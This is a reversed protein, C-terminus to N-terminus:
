KGKMVCVLIIKIICFFSINILFKFVVSFIFHKKKGMLFTTCFYPAAVCQDCCIKKFVIKGANGVLMKDLFTYWAHNFPGMLLGVTFMRGIFLIFLFNLPLFFFSFHIKKFIYVLLVLLYYFCFKSNIWHNELFGLYDFKQETQFYM